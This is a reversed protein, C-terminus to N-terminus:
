SSRIPTRCALWILYGAASEEWVPYVPCPKPTPNRSTPVGVRHTAASTPPHARPDPLYTPSPEEVLLGLRNHAPAQSPNLQRTPRVTHGSKAPPQHAQRHRQAGTTGSTRGGRTRYAKQRCAPTCYVAGPVQVPRPPGILVAPQLFGGPDGMHPARHDAAGDDHAVRPDPGPPDRLHPLGERQAWVDGGRHPVGRQAQRGLILPERIKRHRRGRGPEHLAHAQLGVRPHHDPVGGIGAV